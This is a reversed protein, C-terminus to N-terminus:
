RSSMIDPFVLQQPLMKLRKAGDPVVLLIFRQVALADQNRGALRYALMATILADPAINWSTIDTIATFPALAKGVLILRNDIAFGRLQQLLDTLQALQWRLDYKAFMVLKEPMIAKTKCYLILTEAPVINKFLTFPLLEKKRFERVPTYGSTELMNRFTPDTLQDGTLLLYGPNLFILYPESPFIDTQKQGPIIYKQNWHRITHTQQMKGNGMDFYFAGKSGTVTACGVNNLAPDKKVQNRFETFPLACMMNNLSLIIIFQLLLVGATVAQTLQTKEIRKLLLFFLLISWPLLILMYRDHTFRIVQIFFIQFSIAATLPLLILWKETVDLNWKKRQKLFYLLLIAFGIIFAPDLMSFWQNLSSFLLELRGGIGTSVQQYGQQGSGTIWTFHKKAVDWGGILLYPLLVGPIFGALWCGFPMCVHLFKKDPTQRYKYIAFLLAPLLCAGYIQDKTCFAFALFLGAPIHYYFKKRDEALFVFFLAATFYFTCPIDMNSTSSYFFALPTLLTMTGAAFAYLPSLKLLYLTMLWTLLAIGLAMVATVARFQKIRSSTQEMMMTDDWQSIEKAPFLTGLIVYQVPGYKYTDAEMMKHATFSPNPPVADAVPESLSPMAWSNTVSHLLGWLAILAIASCILPYHKKIM